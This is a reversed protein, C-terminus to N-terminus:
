LLAWLLSNAWLLPTPVRTVINTSGRHFLEAQRTGKQATAAQHNAVSHCADSEPSSTNRLSASICFFCRRRWCCCQVLLLLLSIILALLSVLVCMIFSIHKAPPTYKKGVFALAFAFGVTTNISRCDDASRSVKWSVLNVLFEPLISNPYDSNRFRTTCFEPLRSNTWISNNTISTRFQPLISNPYDSNRGPICTSSPRRRATWPCGECMLGPLCIGM